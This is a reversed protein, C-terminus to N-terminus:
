GLSVCRIAYVRSMYNSLPVLEEDQNLPDMCYFMGNLSAVVLVYHFSGYGKMRVRVIPYRGMQLYEQILESSVKENVDVQFHELKSLQAWQLNGQLDYVNNQSFYRNLEGPNKKLNLGEESGAIDIDSLQLAAAICTVLCGSSKMSYISDGLFDDSWRADTQRYYVKEAAPIDEGPIVKVSGRFRYLVVITMICVAITCLMLGFCIYKRKNNKM